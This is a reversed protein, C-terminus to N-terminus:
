IYMHTFPLLICTVGTHMSSLRISTPSTYMWENKVDYRHTTLTEDGSVTSYNLLLTNTGWIKIPCRSSSFFGNGSVSTMNGCSQYRVKGKVDANLGYVNLVVDAHSEHTNLSQKHAERWCERWKSIKRRSLGKPRVTTRPDVRGRVSILVMFKERHPLPYPPRHTPSVTKGVEHVLRRFTRPVEVEKVGRPRDLATSPYSKINM